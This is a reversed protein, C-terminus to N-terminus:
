FDVRFNKRRDKGEIIQVASELQHEKNAGQINLVETACPSCDM